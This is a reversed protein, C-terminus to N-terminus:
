SELIWDAFGTLDAFQHQPLGAELHEEPWDRGGRNIWASHLGSARPALVDNAPDDGVYIMSAPALGMREICASFIRPDPKSAGVEHAAVVTHFHAGIGIAHVDAFGNSIVGLRYRAALRELAPLADPYFEVKQREARFFEFAEEAQAPSAGADAFAAAITGRRLGMVDNRLAPNEAVLSARLLKLTNVDWQAGVAPAHTRIWAALAKEARNIVPAIPWLTDDLDLVVAQIDKKSM